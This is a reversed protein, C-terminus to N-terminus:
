IKFKSVMNKLSDSLDKLENANTNVEISNNKLTNASSNVEAIESAIETTVTATQAINETVESIGESAQAINQAIEQTTASQEEVASAVNSSMDSLEKMIDSVDNIDTVTYGTANQVNEIKNKIELTAEATQKALEKIENAVVAFGKGAEGARAAEITANLALLNTQESIETITETVKGIEKASSGLEDVRSSAQNTKTSADVALSSTKAMNKSIESITATMEESATAVMNVNTSAQETAAAVSDMNASMEESATAVTNARESTQDADTTLGNSIVSLKDSSGSLADSGEQIEKVMDQMNGVINNLGDALVGVEDKQDITIKKSFDGNALSGTFTVTESLQSLIKKSILFSLLAGIVVSFSLAVVINRKTAASFHHLRVEEEKVHEALVETIQHFVTKVKKLSPLTQNKYIALMSDTAAAHDSGNEIFTKEVEAASKHLKEHPTRMSDILDTLKPDIDELEKMQAQDNIWKGLKCQTHDKEAQLTNISHDLIFNSVTSAWAFHDLERNLFKVDLEFLHEIKATEEEEHKMGILAFAGVFILLLCLVGSIGWIRYRISINGLKM